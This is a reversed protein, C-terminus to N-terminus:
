KLKLASNWKYREHSLIISINEFTNIKRQFRIRVQELDLGMEAIRDIANQAAKRCMSGGAYLAINRLLVRARATSIHMECALNSITIYTCKVQEKLENYYADSLNWTIRREEPSWHSDIGNDKLFRQSCIRALMVNSVYIDKRISM